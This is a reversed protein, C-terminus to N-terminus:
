GTFRRVGEYCSSQHPKKAPKPERVVKLDERILLILFLETTGLPIQLLIQSSNYLMLVIPFLPLFTVLLRLVICVFHM